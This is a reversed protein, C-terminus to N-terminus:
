EKEAMLFLAHQTLQLAGTAPDIRPSFGSEDNQLSAEMLGRTGAYGPSDPAHGAVHMWQDFERQRQELDAALERLGADRFMRKLQAPALTSAHSPDRMREIRNHVAAVAGQPLVLDVIAVRGGRRVVRAMERVVHEPRLLHHLAYGCMCLDWSKDAFPLASVDACVFATGSLGALEAERRARALMAPTFDVGATRPLRKALARVFTGPGCALDLARAAGDLGRTVAAAVREAEEARRSLVFDSFAGATNTFRHRINKLHEGSPGPTSQQNTADSM